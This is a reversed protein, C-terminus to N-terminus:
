KDIKLNKDIASNIQCEIQKFTMFTTLYQLAFVILMLICYLMAIRFVKPNELYVEMISITVKRLNKLGFM